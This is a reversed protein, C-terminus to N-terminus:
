PGYSPPRFKKPTEAKSTSVPFASNLEVASSLGKSISILRNQTRTEIIMQNLVPIM